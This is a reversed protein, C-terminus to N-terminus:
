TPAGHAGTLRGPGSEGQGSGQPSMGSGSERGKLTWTFTGSVRERYREESGPGGAQQM